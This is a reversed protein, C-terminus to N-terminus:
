KSRYLLLYIFLYNLNENNNGGNKILGLHTSHNLSYPKREDSRLKYLRYKGWLIAFIKEYQPSKNQSKDAKVKRQQPQTRFNIIFFFLNNEEEDLLERVDERTPKKKRKSNLKEINDCAFKSLTTDAVKSKARVDKENPKEAM